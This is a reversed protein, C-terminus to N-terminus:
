GDCGGDLLGMDSEATLLDDYDEVVSKPRLLFLRIFREELNLRRKVYCELALDYAVMRMNDLKRINDMCWELQSKMDRDMWLFHEEWNMDVMAVNDQTEWDILCISNALMIEWERHCRYGLGKISPCIKSDNLFNMYKGESVNSGIFIGKLKLQKTVLQLRDYIKRRHARGDSRMAGVFCVDYTKSKLKRPQSWNDNKLWACIARAGPTITHPHLNYNYYKELDTKLLNVKLYVYQKCHKIFRPQIKDKDANDVFVIAKHNHDEQLIPPSDNKINLNEIVFTKKRFACYPVEPDYENSLRPNFNIVDERTDFYNYAYNDNDVIQYPLPDDHLKGNVDYYCNKKVIIM